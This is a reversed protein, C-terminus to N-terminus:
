LLSTKALPILIIFFFFSSLIVFCFLFHGKNLWLCSLGLVHVLLLSHFSCLSIYFSHILSPSFTFLLFTTPATFSFLVFRPRLIESLFFYFSILTFGFWFYSFIFTNSFSLLFTRPLLLINHNWFSFCLQVFSPLLPPLKLSKPRCLDFHVM